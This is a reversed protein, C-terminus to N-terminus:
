SVCSSVLGAFDVRGEPDVYHALVRAWAAQPDGADRVPVSVGITTCAAPV